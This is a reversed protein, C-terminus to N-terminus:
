ADVDQAPPEEQENSRWLQPIGKKECYLHTVNDNKMKIIYKLWAQEDRVKSLSFRKDFIKKIKTADLYKKSSYLVAHIHPMGAKTLEMAAEWHVVGNMKSKVIKQLATRLHYPDDVNTTLTLEYMSEYKLLGKEEYIIQPPQAKKREVQIQKWTMYQRAGVNAIKQLEAENCDCHKYPQFCWFCIGPENYLM